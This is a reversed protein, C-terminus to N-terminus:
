VYPKINLKEKWIHKIKEYDDESINLDELFERYSSRATNRTLMYMLTQMKEQIEQTYEM